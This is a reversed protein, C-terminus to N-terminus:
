LLLKAYFVDNQVIGVQNTMKVYPIYCTQEEEGMVSLTAYSEMREAFATPVRPV